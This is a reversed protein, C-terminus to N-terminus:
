LRHLWLTSVWEAKKKENKNEKGKKKYMCSTIKVYFRLCILATTTNNNNKKKNRTGKNKQIKKNKKWFNTRYKKRTRERERETTM